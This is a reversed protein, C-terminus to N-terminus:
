LIGKPFYRNMSVWFEYADFVHHLQAEKSWAFDKLEELLATDEELRGEAKRQFTLAYKRCIEAHLRLYRWSARVSQHLGADNMRSEILSAYQDLLTPVTALKAANEPNVPPKEGRMYVPDFAASLAKMYAEVSEADDGFATKFYERAMTDFDANKNWLATAM